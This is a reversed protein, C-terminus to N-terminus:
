LEDPWTWPLGCTCLAQMGDANGCYSDLPVGLNRDQGDETGRVIHDKEFGFTAVANKELLVKGGEVTRWQREPSMQHQQRTNLSGVPYGTRPKTEKSSSRRNQKKLIYTHWSEHSEVPEMSSKVARGKSM